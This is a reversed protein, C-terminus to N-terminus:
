RGLDLVSGPRVGFFPHRAGALPSRHFVFWSRPLLKEPNSLFGASCRAADTMVSPRLALLPIRCPFHIGDNESARQSTSGASRRSAGTMGQQTEEIMREIVYRRFVAKDEEPVPAMFPVLSPQDIWKIM